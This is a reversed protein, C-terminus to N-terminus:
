GAARKGAEDCLGNWGAREIPDRRHNIVSVSTQSINRRRTRGEEKKKKKKEKKKGSGEETRCVELRALYRRKTNPHVSLLRAVNM